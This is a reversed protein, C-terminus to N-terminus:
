KGDLNRFTNIQNVKKLFERETSELKMRNCTECCPVCNTSSYGIFNDLRDVGNIEVTALKIKEESYNKYKEGNYMNFEKPAEGCYYCKQIIIQIFDEISLDFTYDRQYAGNKYTTYKHMFSPNIQGIKRSLKLKSAKQHISGPNRKLQICLDNTSLKNYHETLFQTELKSWFKSKMM